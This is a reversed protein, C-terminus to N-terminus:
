RLDIVEIDEYDKPNFSFCSDDLAINPEFATIVFTHLAENGDWAKLEKLQGTKREIALSIKTLLSEQGAAILDVVDCLQNHISQTKLAIPLFGQRYITLLKVPSLAKQVPYYNSIYVENAAPLYTWVTEGNNIVIQGGLTLRYKNEKVMVKGQIEEQDEKHPERLIYVFVTQFTDPQSIRELIKLAKSHSQALAYDSPISLFLLFFLKKKM